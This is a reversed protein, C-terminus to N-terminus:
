HSKSGILTRGGSSRLAISELRKSLKLRLEQETAWQIFRYGALDFHVPEGKKVTLILEKGLTHSVGVEYYCNPREATLDALIVKSEAICSLIEDTIKGSDEIDDIRIARYGFEKAVPYIVGRYASDLDPDGFKMIVFLQRKETRKMLSSSIVLPPHLVNDRLGIEDLLRQTCDAGVTKYNSADEMQQETLPKRTRYVRLYKAQGLNLLAVHDDMTCKVVQKGLFPVVIASVVEERSYNAWWHISFEEDSFREMECFAHYYYM